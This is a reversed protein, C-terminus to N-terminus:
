PACSDACDPLGDDTPDPGCHDPGPDPPATGGLFLFGLAFVADTLELKGSDDADAADPCAPAAQGLFLFGLTIVADTLDVAGSGDSDGRRFRPGPPPPKVEVSCELPPCEVYSKRVLASYRHVGVPAPDLYISVGPGLEALNV